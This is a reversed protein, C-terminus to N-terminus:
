RQRAKIKVSFPALFNFGIWMKSGVESWSSESMEDSSNSLRVELPHTRSSREIESQLNEKTMRISM